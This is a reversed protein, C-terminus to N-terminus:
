KYIWMLVPKESADLLKATQQLVYPNVTPCGDSRCIATGEFESVCSHGHFVVFRKYANSNTTDLGYLKYALGFDGNYREGIRYRGESSCNSGVVNSFVVEERRYDDGQGHCVLGSILVSDTRLDVVFFRKKWSPLSMDILIGYTTSAKKSQAFARLAESHLHAREKALQEKEPQKVPQPQCGALLLLIYLSLASMPLNM